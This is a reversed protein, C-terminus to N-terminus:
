FASKSSIQLVKLPHVVAHHKNVRCFKGRCFKWNCISYYFIFIISCNLFLSNTFYTLVTVIIEIFIGRFKPFFSRFYPRPPKLHYLIVKLFFDRRFCSSTLAFSVQWFGFLKFMHPKEPRM